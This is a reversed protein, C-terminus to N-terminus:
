RAPAFVEDITMEQISGLKLARIRPEITKRDGVIVVALRDPQIYEQAVRQVDAATVAQIAPIYESYYDDPLGNVLLSEVSQLRSSIRGTAEFTTPFHNAISDKARALEEAPLDKLMGTLNDFLESLSEATKDTQAAAAVVFPGASKRMDFGLRVGTTYDRLTVNLPSSFRGRLVTSMVQIPFFDPTARSAGAGGILIRSQPASPKDVLILRRPAKQPVPAPAVKGGNVGPPRWNGFHTELLPLVNEPVVDGVVILASNSPRYVSKHFGGLDEPTFRKITDATGIPATGYRHSPGYIVRSFALSAIADPDDRAQRLTLLRHQRVRELARTSFAPRQAAEAMLPLAAALRASPVHLQLSSSDAGISTSLNAGLTDLADALEVSSRSGAGETLMASTLSAIGYRGPPDDDTGSLVLLSMQVVPLDHYEVIWVLLGNSLQRKQIAPTQASVTVASSVVLVRLALVACRKMVCLDIV